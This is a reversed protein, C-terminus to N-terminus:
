KTEFFGIVFTTLLQFFSIAFPIYYVINLIFLAAMKLIKFRKVKLTQIPSVKPWLQFMENGIKRTRLFLMASLCRDYKLHGTNNKADNIEDKVAISLLNNQALERRHSVHM